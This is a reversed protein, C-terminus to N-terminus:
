WGRHDQHSIRHWPEATRVTTLYRRLLLAIVAGAVFGYVHAVYAVGAGNASGATGAYAWQLLFWCGLVLWAPLRLPVFFLFPVLSIVRARPFVVLYAGLVGAIAGSAGILAEKSSPNSLAFGYAAVYGCFLYFALFPLRGMRDEVNNGFILLFLMNGLLHIWGAHLFMSELVSLWPHKGAESIARCQDQGVDTTISYHHVGLPRNHLLERPIAAHHDFYAAQTCAQRVTEAAHLGVHTVGGPETLFVGVNIAILAWTVLPLRRLPNEDHIPIVV